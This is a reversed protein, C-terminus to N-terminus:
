KNEKWKFQIEDDVIIFEAYGRKVCEKQWKTDMQRPSQNCILLWIIMIGIGLVICLMNNTSQKM